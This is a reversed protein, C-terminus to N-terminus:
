ARRITGKIIVDVEGSPAVVYPKGGKIGSYPPRLEGSQGGNAAYTGRLVTEGNGLTSDAGIFIYADGGAATVLSAYHIELSEDPEITRTDTSGARYLTIELGGSANSSNLEGHVEDGSYM